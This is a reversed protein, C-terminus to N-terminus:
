LFQLLHEFGSGIMSGFRFLFGNDTEGRPPGGNERRSLPRFGLANQTLM